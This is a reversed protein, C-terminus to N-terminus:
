TRLKSAPVRNPLSAKEWGAKESSRMAAINLVHGGCFVDFLRDLPKREALKCPQANPKLGEICLLEIRRDLLVGADALKISVGFREGGVAGSARAIQSANRTVIGPNRQAGDPSRINKQAMALLPLSSACDM